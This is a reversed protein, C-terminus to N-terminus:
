FSWPAVGYLTYTCRKAYWLVPRYQINGQTEAPPVTAPDLDWVSNVCLIVTRVYVRRRYSTEWTVIMVVSSGPPASFIFPFFTRM